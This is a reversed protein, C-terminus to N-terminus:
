HLIAFRKLTMFTETLLVIRAIETNRSIGRSKADFKISIKIYAKFTTGDFFILM